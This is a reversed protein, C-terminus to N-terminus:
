FAAGVELGHLWSWGGHRQNNDDGAFHTYTPNFIEAGVFTHRGLRMRLGWRLRAYVDVTSGMGLELSVPIAFLHPGDVALHAGLRGFGLFGQTTDQVEGAQQPGRVMVHRVGGSLEVIDHLRVGASVGDVLRSPRLTDIVADGSVLLRVRSRRLAARTFLPEADGHEGLDPKWAPTRTRQDPTRAGEILQWGSGKSEGWGETRPHADHKKPWSMASGIVLIPVALAIVAAVGATVGATAGLTRVGKVNKVEAAQMEDWRWGRTTGASSAM